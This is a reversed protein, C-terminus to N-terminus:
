KRVGNKIEMFLEKGTMAKYSRAEHRRNEQYVKIDSLLFRYIKVGGVTETLAQIKGSDAKAKLTEAGMSLLQSTKNLSFERIQEEAVRGLAKTLLQKVDYLENLIIENANM